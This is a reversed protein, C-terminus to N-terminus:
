LSTYSCKSQSKDYNKKRRIKRNILHFFLKCGILIMSSNSSLIADKFYGLKSKKNHNRLYALYTSYIIELALSNNKTIKNGKFFDIFTNQVCDKPLDMDHKITMSFFMQLFIDSFSFNFLEFAKRQAIGACKQQEDKKTSTIQQENHRYSFLVVAINTVEGYPLMSVWLSYDQAYRVSEDYRVVYDKVKKRFMASPHAVQSNQLFQARVWSPDSEYKGVSGIQEGDENISITWSGVGCVDPHNDLYKLQTEFRKPFSIDDADMRAIIDGRAISLAKNLSKTLGINEINNIIVIRSDNQEYETLVQKNEQRCPCDNVIIFEFDNFTQALISDIAQKMWQVPEKYVSMIVSIRPM